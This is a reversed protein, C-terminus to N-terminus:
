SFVVFGQGPLFDQLGGGFATSSEGPVAPVFDQPGRRSSAGRGYVPIDVLEEVTRESSREYRSPFVTQEAIREFIREDRSPFVTQEM